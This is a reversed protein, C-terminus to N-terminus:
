PEDDATEPELGFNYADLLRGLRKKDSDLTGLSVSSLEDPAFRDFLAASTRSPDHRARYVIGDPKRPHDYLAKSWRHALAYDLGDTLSADAGIRALGEGRLDVLRLPRTCDIRAFGRESLEAHALVPPNRAQGLTEIFACRLDRGVYLVGYEGAPADFRYDGARGFYIPDFKLRHVRFWPGRFQRILM